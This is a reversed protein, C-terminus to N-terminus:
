SLKRLPKGVEAKGRLDMTATECSQTSIPHKIKVM